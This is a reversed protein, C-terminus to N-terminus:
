DLTAYWLMKLHLGWVGFVFNTLSAIHHVFDKADIPEFSSFYIRGLPARWVVVVSLKYPRNTSM